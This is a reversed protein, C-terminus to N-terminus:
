DVEISIFSNLYHLELFGDMPISYYVLSASTNPPSGYLLTNCTVRATESGCVMYVYM